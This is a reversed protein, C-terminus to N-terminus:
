AAAEGGDAEAPAPAARVIEISHGARCLFVGRELDPDLRGAFSIGCDVCVATFATASGEIQVVQGASM